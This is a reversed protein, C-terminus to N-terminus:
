LFYACLANLPLSPRLVCQKNRATNYRVKHTYARTRPRVYPAPRLKLLALQLSGDCALGVLACIPVPCKVFRTLSVCCDFFCCHAHSWLANRYPVPM